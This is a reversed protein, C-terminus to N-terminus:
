IRKIKNIQEVEYLLLDMDEKLIFGQGYFLNNFNRTIHGVIEYSSLNNENSVIKSKLLKKYM